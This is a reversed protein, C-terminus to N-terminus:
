EGLIPEYAEQLQDVREQLEEAGVFEEPVYDEGLQEQVEPDQLAGELAAELRQVIEEPTGAPAGLAFISNGLTLEEYGIEALTPTDPLYEVQEEPTVALSRFEGADVQSVIDESANVLIADVNGGLLASTMESNGDFPVQSMEIRYEENLRQLEIAQPTSAGPTGVNVEGPSEEAADLLEEASGYESDERVALVSPIETMLGIPAIDESTYGVEESLPTIVATGGTFVMTTYGDPEEGLMENTGVAGSAGSLNEVVVTQDLEGEFFSAVSRGALDTPGGATYPIIITVDDSPYDEASEEQGGGCSALLPLTVVLLFLFRTKCPM